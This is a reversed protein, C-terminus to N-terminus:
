FGFPNNDVPAVYVVEQKFAAVPPVASTTESGVVIQPPSPQHVLLAAPADVVVSAPTAQPLNGFVNDYADLVGTDEVKQALQLASDPKELMSTLLVLDRLSSGEIRGEKPMVLLVHRIMQALAGVRSDMFIFGDLKDAMKLLPSFARRNVGSKGFLSEESLTKAAKAIDLLLEGLLGGIKTSLNKAMLGDSDGPSIGIGNWDFGIQADVYNASFASQKIIDTWQPNLKAYEDLVSDYRAVLDAKLSLGKQKLEELKEALADKKSNPVAFGGMFPPAVLACATQMARKVATLKALEKKDFVRKVGLAMVAKSADTDITVNLAKKLDAASLKRNGHFLSINLTFLTIHELTQQVIAM